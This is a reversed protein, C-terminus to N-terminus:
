STKSKVKNQLMHTLYKFTEIVVDIIIYVITLILWYTLLMPIFRCEIGIGSTMAHVGTYIGTNQTWNFLDSKTMQDVGYYFANDLTSKTYVSVIINFYNLNSSNTTVVGNSTFTIHPLDTYSLNRSLYRTNNTDYGVLYYTLDSYYLFGLKNINTGQSTFYDNLDISIETFGYSYSYINQGTLDYEKYQFTYEQNEILTDPNAVIKQTVYYSSYSDKANKNFTVYLMQSVSALLPALMLLSFLCVKLIDTLSHNHKIKEM